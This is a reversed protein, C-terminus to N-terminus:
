DGDLSDLYNKAKRITDHIRHLTTYLCVRKNEDMDLLYGLDSVTENITYDKFGHKQCLESTEKSKLRLCCCINIM